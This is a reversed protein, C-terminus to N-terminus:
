EKRKRKRERERELGEEGGRQEGRRQQGREQGPAPTQECSSSLNLAAPTRNLPKNHPIHPWLLCVGSACVLHGCLHRSQGYISGPTRSQIVRQVRNHTNQTRTRTCTRTHTHTPNAHTHTHHPSRALPSSLSCHPIDWVLSLYVSVCVSCATPGSAHHTVAPFASKPLARVDGSVFLNQWKAENFSLTYQLKNKFGGKLALSHRAGHKYIRPWSDSIKLREVPHESLALLATKM